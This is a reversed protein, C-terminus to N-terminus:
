VPIVQRDNYTGCVTCSYGEPCDGADSCYLKGDTPQPDYSCGATSVAFGGATLVAAMLLGRRFSLRIM